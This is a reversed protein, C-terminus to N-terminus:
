LATLPLNQDISASAPLASRGSAYADEEKGWTREFM